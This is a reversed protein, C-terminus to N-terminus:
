PLSGGAADMASATMLSIMSGRGTITLTLPLAIVKGGTMVLVLDHRRNSQSTLTLVHGGSHPPFPM